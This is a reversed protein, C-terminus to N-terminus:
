GDLEETRNLKPRRHPSGVCGGSWAGGPCLPAAETSALLVAGVYEVAPSGGSCRSGTQAVALLIDAGAAPSVPPSM